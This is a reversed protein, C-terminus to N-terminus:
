DQDVAKEFAEAVPVGSKILAIIEKRYLGINPPLASKNAMYYDSMVKSAEPAPTKKVVSRKVAPKKIVPPADIDLVLYSGILRSLKSPIQQEGTKGLEKAVWKNAWNNVVEKGLDRCCSLYRNHWNANLEIAFFVEDIVDESYPKPLSALAETFLNKVDITKM